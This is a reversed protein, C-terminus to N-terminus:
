FKSAATPSTVITVFLVLITSKVWGKMGDPSTTTTGKLSCFDLGQDKRWGNVVSIHHTVPAKKRKTPLTTHIRSCLSLGSNRPEGLFCSIVTNQHTHEAWKFPRKRLGKTSWLLGETIIMALTHSMAARATDNYHIVWILPLQM